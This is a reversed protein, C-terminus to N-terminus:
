IGTKLKSSMYDARKARDEIQFHQLFRKVPPIKKLCNTFADTLRPRHLRNNVNTQRGGNIVAPTLRERSSDNPKLEREVGTGRFTIVVDSLPNPPSPRRKWIDNDIPPPPGYQDSNTTASSILPTSVLRPNGTPTTFSNPGGILPPPAEISQNKSELFM